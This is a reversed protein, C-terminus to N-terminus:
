RARWLDVGRWREREQDLSAHAHDQESAAKAEEYVPGWMPHSSENRHLVFGSDIGFALDFAHRCQTYNETVCYSFATYKLADVRLADPAAQIDPAGLVAIAERFNGSEYLRIGALLTAAAQRVDEHRAPAGDDSRMGACGACLLALLALVLCYLPARRLTM